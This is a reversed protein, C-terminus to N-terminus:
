TTFANLQKHKERKSDELQILKKKPSYTDKPCQMLKVIASSENEM